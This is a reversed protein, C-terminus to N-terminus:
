DMDRRGELWHFHGRNTSSGQREKERVAIEVEEKGGKEWADAVVQLDGLSTSALGVTAHPLAYENANFAIAVGGAERVTELMRADTISDGVVITQSLPSDGMFRRLAEVKRRGGVPKVRAMAKGLDTPPLEGWFFRDLRQQLSVDDPSTGALEKELRQVLAMDQKPIHSRIEDLPFSTSAVKHPPIGVRQTIRLAYPQYSTSICYVEWGRASLRHILDQAGEVLSAKEALTIIDREQVGHALLFPVILSLTDGPEYGERRELTLLDDYRSILEFIQGKSVLKMLEYANDQPSLPGELDFCILNM